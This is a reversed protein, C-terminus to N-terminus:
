NLPSYCIRPEFGPSRRPPRWFPVGFLVVASIRSSACACPGSAMASAARRIFLACLSAVLIAAIPSIRSRPYPLDISFISYPPGSPPGIVSSASSMARMLLFSDGGPPEECHAVRSHEDEAQFGRYLHVGRSAATKGHQEAIVALSVSSMHVTTNPSPLNHPRPPRLAPM